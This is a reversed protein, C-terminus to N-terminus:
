LYSSLFVYEFYLKIYLKGVHFLLINMKGIWITELSIKLTTLVRINIQMM